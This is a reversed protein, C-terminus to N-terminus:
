LPRQEDALRNVPNARSAWKASAWFLVLGIVVLVIAGFPLLVDADGIAIPLLKLAAFVIIMSFGAAMLGAGLRHAPRAPRYRARAIAPGVLCAAVYAPYIRGMEAYWQVTSQDDHYARLGTSSEPLDSLGFLVATVGATLGLMILGAAGGVLKRARESGFAAACRIGLLMMVGYLSFRIVLNALNVGGMLADVSLYIPELSLAVALSLLVGAFFMIRGKGRLADPLRILTLLVSLVLAVLQILIAPSM